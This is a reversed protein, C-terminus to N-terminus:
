KALAELFKKAREFDGDKLFKELTLYLGLLELNERPNSLLVRVKTELESLAGKVAEESYAAYNLGKLMGLLERAEVTTKLAERESRGPISSDSTLSNSANWDVLMEEPAIQKLAAIFEEFEKVKGARIHDTAKSGKAKIEALKEALAIAADVFQEMNKRKNEPIHYFEKRLILAITPAKKKM